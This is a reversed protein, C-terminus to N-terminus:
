KKILRIITQDLSHFCSCVNYVIMLRVRKAKVYFYDYGQKAKRENWSTREATETLDNVPLTNGHVGEGLVEERSQQWM